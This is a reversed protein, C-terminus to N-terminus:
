KIKFKLKGGHKRSYAPGNFSGNNGVLISAQEPKTIVYSEPHSGFPEMPDYEPSWRLSHDRGIYGDYHTSRLPHWRGSKINADVMRGFQKVNNNNQGARIKSLIKTREALEAATMKNPDKTIISMIKPDKLYSLDGWINGLIEFPKDPFSKFSPMADISRMYRIAESELLFPRQGGNIMDYPKSFGLWFGPTENNSHNYKDAYRKDAAFFIGKDQEPFTEPAHEQIGGEIAKQDTGGKYGIKLTKDGFKAKFDKSQSQIWSGEDGQFIYEGNENIKSGPFNKPTQMYTGEDLAKEQILKYEPLHESLIRKDQETVYKPNRLRNWRNVEFLKEVPTFNMGIYGPRFYYKTTPTYGFRPMDAKILYDLAGKGKLGLGGGIFYGPNTFEALTPTQLRLKEQVNEAWTKGTLNQSTKDIARGGVIGGVLATGTTIPNSLLALGGGITSLGTGAYHLADAVNTRWTPQMALKIDRETDEQDKTKGSERRREINRYSGEARTKPTEREVKERQRTQQNAQQVSFNSNTNMGPVFNLQSQIYAQAEPSFQIVGRGRGNKQQHKEILKKM